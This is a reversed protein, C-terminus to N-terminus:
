PVPTESVALMLSLADPPMCEAESCTQYTVAIALRVSGSNRPVQFELPMTIVVTGEYVLFQEDLGAIRFQRAEPWAILGSRVGDPTSTIDITLGAYGVPAAPAYVHWGPAIALELRLGLRQYAFYTPSDLEAHGSVIVMRGTASTVVSPGNAIAVVGLLLTVLWQGGYRLRYNAEVLKREIRGAEDLIFTMPYAVGQQEPRTAVGFVAHHAELDDDLLGLARIVSSGEDALLSYDIQHRDAFAKLDAPRDYTIAFVSYGARELTAHVRQLEVLQM